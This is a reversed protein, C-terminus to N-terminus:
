ALSAVLILEGPYKSGYPSKDYDAYVHDLKFGARALLHEAEFRFLYRLYFGDVVREERGNPCTIYYVLEFSGVQNFRDQSVTKHRRRVKRGDPLVFEPEESHEIGIKANAIFDLSPNFLDLILKGNPLLHKRITTLCALQDEVTLLHQFSRFPTTILAFKQQMNFDRMDGLTLQVREQVERPEQTLRNRCIQLMSPSLDLGHIEAGGRTIPLLVRGTGCGLELIPGHADRAADLYFGIDAREHYPVVYDYLEAIPEYDDM